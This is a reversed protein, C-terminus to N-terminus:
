FIPHHSFFFFGLDFWIQFSKQPRPSPTTIASGAVSMKKKHRPFHLSIHTFRDSLASLFQWMCISYSRVLNRQQQKVASLFRTSDIVCFLSFFSLYFSLFFSAKRNGDDGQKYTWRVNFIGSWYFPGYLLFLSTFFSLRTKKKKAKGSPYSFGRASTCIYIWERELTFTSFVRALDLM